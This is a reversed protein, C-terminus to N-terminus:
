LANLKEVYKKETMRMATFAGKLERAVALGGGCRVDAGVDEDPVFLCGAPRQLLPQLDSDM